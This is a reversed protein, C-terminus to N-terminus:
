ELGGLFEQVPERERELRLARARIGELAQRVRQEGSGAGRPLKAFFGEVDDAEELTRLGRCLLGACIKWMPGGEFKSSILGFNDKFYRWCARGGEDSSSSLSNLPYMIDQSRVKPSFLVYDLMEAHRKPDKVSGLVALCSRQEEPFRSKEYWQKLAPYVRDEDCRMAAKLVIGRLDSPIPDGNNIFGYFRMLAENLVSKDGSTSLVSIIAARLTGSRQPESPRADWGLRELQRAYIKRTFEQFKPFFSESRYLSLLDGINVSLEQWVAYEPLCVRSTGRMRCNSSSSSSLFPCCEGAMEHQGFDEVLRLSDVISTYSARGAAFSDSILGLRDSASLQGGPALATKLRRWQENTYAVRFFGTQDINLKFWKGEKSWKSICELFFPSEDGEPGDILWPGHVTTDGEVM